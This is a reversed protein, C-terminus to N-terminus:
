KAKVDNAPKQSEQLGTITHRQARVHVGPAIELTVDNGVAKVVTAFLGGGTVVKDGAKIDNILQQHLKMRKSQPRIVLVYFLAFILVLPLMSTLFSPEAPQAAATTVVDSAFASSIFM